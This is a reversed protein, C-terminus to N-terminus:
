WRPFIVDRTQKISQFSMKMWRDATRFCSAIKLKFFTTLSMNSPTTLDTNLLAQATTHDRVRLMINDLASTLSERQLYAPSCRCVCVWECEGWLFGVRHLSLPFPLPPPPLHIVDNGGFPFLTKVVFTSFWLIAAWANEKRPIPDSRVNKVSTLCMRRQRGKGLRNKGRSVPGCFLVPLAPGTPNHFLLLLRPITCYWICHGTSYSFM